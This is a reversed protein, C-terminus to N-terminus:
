TFRAPLRLSNKDEGGKEQHLPLVFSIQGGQERPIAWISGAHANIISKSIALGLGSGQRTEPAWTYLDFLTDASELSIGKGSDIIDIRYADVPGSSGNMLRKWENSPREKQVPYGKIDIIGGEPTFKCSNELLYIFLRELQDPEFPVLSRELGVNVSIHKEELLQHVILLAKDLSNEVNNISLDEAKRRSGLVLLYLIDVSLRGLRNLSYRMRRLLDAQQVEDRNSLEDFLLGCYGNLAALSSRFDHVAREIISKASRTSCM